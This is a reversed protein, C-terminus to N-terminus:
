FRNYANCNRDADHLAANTTKGLYIQYDQNAAGYMVKGGGAIIMLPIGLTVGGEMCRTFLGVLVITALYSGFSDLAGFWGLHSSSWCFPQHM